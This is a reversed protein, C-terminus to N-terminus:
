LTRLLQNVKDFSQVFTQVIVEYDHAFREPPQTKIEEPLFPALRQLAARMFAVRGDWDLPSLADTFIRQIYDAQQESKFQETVADLVSKIGGHTGDIAQVVAQQRGNHNRFTRELLALAKTKAEQHDLLEIAHPSLHRQLHIYFAVLTKEFQEWSAVTSKKLIFSGCASDIPIHLKQALAPESIMATVTNFPRSDNEPQSQNKTTPEPIMSETATFRGHAAEFLVCVDEYDHEQAFQSLRICLSTDLLPFTITLRRTAPPLSYLLQQLKQGLLSAYQQRANHYRAFSELLEKVKDVNGSLLFRELAVWFRQSNGQYFYQAVEDTSSNSETPRGIPDYFGLRLSALVIDEEAFVLKILESVALVQRIRMTNKAAMIAELSRQHEGPSLTKLSKDQNLNPCIFLRVSDDAMVAEIKAPIAKVATINGAVSAIHGTTVIDGPIPLQLAASLMALQIPLDASFGSINLGIDHASAASLNTISIEYNHGPLQLAELIRDVNVMVTEEIHRKALDSVTTPGTFRLRKGPKTPQIVRVVVSSIVGTQRKGQGFVLVTKASGIKKKGEVM